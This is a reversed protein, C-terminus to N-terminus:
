SSSEKRKTMTLIGSKMEQPCAQSNITREKKLYLEYNVRIIELHLTRKIVVIYAVFAVTGIM